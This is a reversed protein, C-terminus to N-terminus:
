ENSRRDDADRTSLVGHGESPFMQGQQVGYVVVSTSTFHSVFPDCHSSIATFFEVGENMSGLLNDIGCAGAPSHMDYLALLIFLTDTFEPDSIAPERPFVRIVTLVQRFLAGPFIYDDRTVLVIAWHM